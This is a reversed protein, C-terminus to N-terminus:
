KEDMVESSGREEVLLVVVPTELVSVFYGHCLKLPVGAVYSVVEIPWMVTPLLLNQTIVLGTEM